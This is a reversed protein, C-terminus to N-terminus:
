LDIRLEIGRVRAEPFFHQWGERGEFDIASCGMLGAWEKLRWREGIWSSMDSGGCWEVRLVSKDRQRSIRTLLLTLIAGRDDVAVWAQMEGLSLARFVDDAEFAECKEVLLARIPQWVVGFQLQDRPVHRWSSNDLVASM